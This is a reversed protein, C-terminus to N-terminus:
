NVCKPLKSAPIGNNYLFRVVSNFKKPTTYEIAKLFNKTEEYNMSYIEDLFDDLSLIDENILYIKANESLYPITDLSGEPVTSYKGRGYGIKLCEYRTGTRKYLRPKDGKGCWTEFYCNNPDFMKCRKEFKSYVGNRSNPDIRRGTIPNITKNRFWKECDSTSIM